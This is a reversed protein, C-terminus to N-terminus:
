INLVDRITLFDQICAVTPRMLVGSKVQVRDLAEKREKTNSALLLAESTGPKEQEEYSKFVWWSSAKRIIRDSISGGIM